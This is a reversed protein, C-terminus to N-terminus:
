MILKRLWVLQYRTFQDHTCVTADKGVYTLSQFPFTKAHSLFTEDSWNARRDNWPGRGLVLLFDHRAARFVVDNVINAISFLWSLGHM